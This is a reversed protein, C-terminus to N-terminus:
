INYIDHKYKVINNSKKFWKITKKLNKDFYTNKNKIVKWKLLKSAKSSNCHLVEM